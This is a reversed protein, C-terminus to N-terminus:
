SKGPREQVFLRSASEFDTAVPKQHDIMELEGATNRDTWYHGKLGTAPTGIIQLLIAGHHIPSRHRVSQRPENRYVGAIKFVGDSNKLIEAGLLESSSERTMLRMSLASFTQHIVVCGEIPGIQKGTSPDIWNSKITGWWTGTVDPRKVFWGRLIPLRWLWLDFAALLFVLTGSVTSLPRLWAISVAVGDILLLFGWVVAAVLLVASLQIESPM